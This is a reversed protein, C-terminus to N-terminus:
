RMAGQCTTSSDIVSPIVSNRGTDEVPWRIRKESNRLSGWESKRVVKLMAIWDPAMRATVM